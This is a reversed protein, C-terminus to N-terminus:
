CQTQELLNWLRGDDGVGWPRCSKCGELNWGRAIRIWLVILTLSEKWISPNKVPGECLYPLVWGAFWISCDTRSITAWFTQWLADEWWFLSRSHKASLFLMGHFRGVLKKESRIAVICCFHKGNCQASSKWCCNTESRHPTSTCHNWSLDECAKGFELSNDTYIVNSKRVSELFSKCTGKHKRLLKQKARIRSSGNPPRTKGCSPMDFITESLVKHNATILDGFNEARLVAGGNRRRFPARVFSPEAMADELRLGQLKSGHTYVSQKGLDENKGSTPELSVEHSSSALSDKNELVEDDMLIERLEQLWEHIESRASGSDAFLPLGREIMIEKSIKPQCPRIGSDAAFLSNWRRDEANSCSVPVTPSDIGSQDERDRIESDSLVTSTPSTSLSSSHTPHDSEQQRSSTM